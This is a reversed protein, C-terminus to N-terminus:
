TILKVAKEMSLSHNSNDSLHFCNDYRYNTIYKKYKTRIINKIKIATNSVKNKDLDLKYISFKIFRIQLVPDILSLTKHPLKSKDCRMDKQYIAKVFNFLNNKNLIFKTDKVIEYNNSLDNFIMDSVGQAPPWIIASLFYKNINNKDKFIWFSIDQINQESEIKSDGIDEVHKLTNELIDYYLKVQVLNYNYKYNKFAWIFDFLTYDPNDLIDWRLNCVTDQKDKYLYLKEMKDHIKTKSYYYTSVIRNEKYITNIELNNILISCKEDLKNERVIQLKKFM